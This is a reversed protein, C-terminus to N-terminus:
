MLCWNLLRMHRWTQRHTLYTLGALAMMGNSCDPFGHMIVLAPNACNGITTVHLRVGQNSVIMTATQAHNLETIGVDHGLKQEIM